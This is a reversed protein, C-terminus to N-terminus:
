RERRAPAEALHAVGLADRRSQVLIHRSIVVDMEEIRRFFIERQLLCACLPPLIKQRRQKKRRQRLSARMIRHAQQFPFQRFLPSGSLCFLISLPVKISIM